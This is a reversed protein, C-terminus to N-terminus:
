VETLKMSTLRRAIENSLQLVLPSTYFKMEQNSARCCHLGWVAAVLPQVARHVCPRPRVDRLTELLELEERLQEMKRRMTFQPDVAELSKHSRLFVVCRLPVSLSSM